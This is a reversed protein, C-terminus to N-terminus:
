GGDREEGPFTLHGGRTKERDDQGKKRSRSERMVVDRCGDFLEILLDFGSGGGVEMEQPGDFVPCEAM